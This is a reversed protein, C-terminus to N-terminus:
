CNQSQSFHTSVVNPVAICVEQYFKEREEPTDREPERIGNISESIVKQEKQRVAMTAHQESQRPSNNFCLSKNHFKYVAGKGRGGVRKHEGDVM